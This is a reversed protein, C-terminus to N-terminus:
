FLKNLDGIVFQRLGFPEQLIENGEKTEVSPIEINKYRLVKCKKKLHSFYDKRRIKEECEDNACTFLMNDYIHKEMKTLKETCKTSGCKKFCEFRGAAQIGFGICKKCVLTECQTCKVPSFVIGYCLMCIFEQVVEENLDGCYM